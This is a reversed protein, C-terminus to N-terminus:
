DRTLSSSGVHWLQPDQTSWSLGLAALYIKFIILFFFFAARHDQRHARSGPVLKGHRLGGEGLIQAKWLTM